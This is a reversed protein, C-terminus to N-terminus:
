LDIATRLMADVAEMADDELSGVHECLWERWLRSLSTGNVWLRGPLQVALIDQPDEHVVELGYLWPRSSNNIGDASVIVVTRERPIGKPAYRWVEGRIM